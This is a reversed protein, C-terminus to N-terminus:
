HRVRPRFLVDGGICIIGGIRCGLKQMLNKYGKVLIMRILFIYM